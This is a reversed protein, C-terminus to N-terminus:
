TCVHILYKKFKKNSGKHTKSPSLMIINPETSETYNSIFISNNQLINNDNNHLLYLM